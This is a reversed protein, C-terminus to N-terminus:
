LSDIGFGGLSRALRKSEGTPCLTCVHNEGIGGGLIRIIRTIVGAKAQCCLDFVLTYVGRFNVRCLKIRIEATPLFYRQLEAFLFIAFNFVDYYGRLQIVRGTNSIKIFDLKQTVTSFQIQATRIEVIIINVIIDIAHFFNRRFIFGDRLFRSIRVSVIQTFHGIMRALKACHVTPKIVGMAAVIQCTLCIIPSFLGLIGYILFGRSIGLDLIAAPIDGCVLVVLFSSNTANLLLIGGVRFDCVNGIRIIFEVLQCFNGAAVTHLVLQIIIVEM